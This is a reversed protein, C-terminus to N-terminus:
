TDGEGSEAPVGVENADPTLKEVTWFMGNLNANDGAEKKYADEADRKAKEAWNTFHGRAVYRISGPGYYNPDALDSTAESLQEGNPGMDRMYAAFALALERQEDDWEPERRTM